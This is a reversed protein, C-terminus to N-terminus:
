HKRNKWWLKYEHWVCLGYVFEGMLIGLISWLAGISLLLAVVAFVSVIASYVSAYALPRFAGAAQLFTSEPIRLIRVLAVIIWLGTATILFRLDYNEPFILRPVLSFLVSLALAMGTWIGVMIFRFYRVAASADAVRGEAIARAMQAREFESLANLAVSIPRIVISSAAIPAFASPGSLTTVLYVHSNATTETTLVGLLSWISHRKWISLYAYAAAPSFSLFQLKLYPWGFPLFGFLISILLAIFAFHLTQSELALMLVIGGSLTFAYVLDSFVTRRSQGTTYGYARAFWRLLALAAYLAFWVSDILPVTLWRALIWFIAMSIGAAILNSSSFCLLLTRQDDSQSTNFVVTLPACFLAGWIGVGLQSAVLLFSFTGFERADVTQLLMLSLIFQAAASSIPGLSAGGYRLAKKAAEAPWIM